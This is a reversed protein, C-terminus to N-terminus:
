LLLCCNIPGLHVSNLLPKDSLAVLEDMLYSLAAEPGNEANDVLIAFNEAYFDFEEVGKLLIVKYM